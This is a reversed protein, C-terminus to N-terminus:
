KIMGKDKLRDRASKKPEPKQEEKKDEDRYSDPDTEDQDNEDESENEDTLDEIFDKGKEYADKAQKMVNEKTLGESTAFFMTTLYTGILTGVVASAFHEIYVIDIPTVFALIGTIAVYGVVIWVLRILFNQGFLFGKPNDAKMQLDKSNFVRNFFRYLRNNKSERYALVAGLLIALTFIIIELTM